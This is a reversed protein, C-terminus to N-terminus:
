LWIPVRYHGRAYSAVGNITIRKDDERSLALKNVELTKAEHKRSRFLLQSRHSREGSFLCKKYDHFSITKKVVCKKIGKCKKPESNGVRYSYMKPRLSVFAIMITGGLEDKMLGIVKKNKGVPLPRSGDNPYGSTDFRSEVDPSIDSYFDKTKISYILSDTDMYCLKLRDGYKPIMYDYHFEYMITKSLDLIAQGLYVPKNMVVRVKGIECGMLDPGLLTGSKIVNRLYEEENNVLKINRHKRINEMTKGFVSNNMLKYFDKEFDNKAATRLRTNFDIYERMWASQKFEIARHIRELVLGHELARALAKVHIVYKRKYYLNPVLKDVGNIKMKACMFPLDNHYDHLAKPYRVDVEVLYGYDKKTVLEEVITKPNRNGFEVWRFEGTPLPQSMAWGYLNNADLYQLYKTPKSPDYESGMYPNNAAAWRQVSQTIGGRIGREFMLLMDPDMLLKLSVGTKKLCAKWALGPATYFHSPDLVYNELCVRRFLEFVNALLLVDTRLYLDHYEGMNRIGFERWVRCAHEYHSDSIGSMNLSSYFREISPLSMEEFRDWSDMYEYPYIGKRILLECQCDNYSELGWFEHGGRALNNILSDLSSSMFKISDIFRLEMEKIHENGGKDIYKDVEVKISFSIYDETSKAIIGMGTM